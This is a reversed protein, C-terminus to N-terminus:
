YLTKFEDCFLHDMVLFSMNQQVNLIVTSDLQLKNNILSLFQFSHNATVNYLDVIYRKRNNRSPSPWGNFCTGYPIEAAQLTHHLINITQAM